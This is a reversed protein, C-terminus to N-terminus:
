PMERVQSDPLEVLEYPLIPGSHFGMGPAPVHPTPLTMTMMPVDPSQVGLPSIPGAPTPSVLADHTGHVENEHAATEAADAGTAGATVAGAAAVAGGAAVAAAAPAVYEHVPQEQLPAAYYQQQPEPSQPPAGNGGYPSFRGAADGGNAGAGGADSMSTKSQRRRRFLFFAALALLSVGAVGGVVGGAIAGADSSKSGSSAATSSAASSTTSTTSTASTSGDTSSLVIAQTGATAACSYLRYGSLLGTKYVYTLCEPSSDDSCYLMQTMTTNYQASDTQPLCSTFIPCDTSTTPCCGALKSKTNFICEDTAGCYVSSSGIGSVYGCNTSEIRRQLRGRRDFPSTPAPTVAAPMLLAAVAQNVDNGEGSSRLLAAPAVYGLGDAVPTGTERAPRWSGAAAAMAEARTAMGVVALFLVAALRTHDKMTDSRNRPQM